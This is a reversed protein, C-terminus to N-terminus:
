ERKKLFEKVQNQIQMFGQMWGNSKIEEPVSQSALHINDLVPLIEHIVSGKAYNGLMAMRELEEKKYNILDAAARKWNSLYEDTKKQLMELESEPKQEDKKTDEEMKNVKLHNNSLNNPILFKVPNQWFCGLASSM